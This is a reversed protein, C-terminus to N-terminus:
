STPQVAAELEQNTQKEEEEDEETTTEYGPLDELDLEPVHGPRQYPLMSINPNRPLYEYSDESYFSYEESSDHMHPKAPNPDGNEKAIQAM